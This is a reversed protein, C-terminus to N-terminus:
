KEILKLIDGVTHIKTLANNPVSVNWTQEVAVAINMLDFSTAGLDYRLSAEPTITEPDLEVYECILEKLQELM